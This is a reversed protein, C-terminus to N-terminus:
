DTINIIVLIDSNNYYRIKITGDPRKYVEKHYNEFIITAANLNVSIISSEIKTKRVFKNTINNNSFVSNFLVSNQFGSTNFTNDSLTTLSFNNDSFYGGNIISTRTIICKSLVNRLINGFLSTNGLIVSENTITNSIIDCNINNYGIRSDDIVNQSISSSSFFDNFDILSGNTITNGYITCDNNFTNSFISSNSITNDYIAGNLLNTCEFYSNNVINNKLGKNISTNYINGWMFVSIPSRYIPQTSYLSGGYEYFNQLDTKTVFVINNGEVEHRMIILDNDFDYGIKDTVKNYHTDSYSVKVWNSNLTLISTATAEGSVICEWVFGGWSVFEGDSYITGNVTDAVPYLEGYKPNHFIGHGTDSFKNSDIAQLIIEVNNVGYLTNHVGTIKYFNGIILSNTSILIEASTRTVTIVGGGGSFGSLVLDKIDSLTVQTAIENEVVVTVGSLSPSTNEPLNTIKINNM